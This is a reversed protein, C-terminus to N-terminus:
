RKVSVPHRLLAAKMAVHQPSEAGFRAATNDNLIHTVCAYASPILRSALDLLAADLNSALLSTDSIIIEAVAPGCETFSRYAKCEATNKNAAVGCFACGSMLMVMAVLLSNKTM